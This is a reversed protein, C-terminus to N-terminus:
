LAGLLEFAPLATVLKNTELSVTVVRKVLDVIYRPDDSWENPDNTIGSDKDTTIAYREMVCEIASKGNVVYNYADLPVGTLRVHPNFIIQSKDEVKKEKPFKMGVENVRYLDKPKKPAGEAIQEKLPYPKCTEYGLHIEALARGTKSYGWFDKLLPIRPLMKKLDNQYKARYIPSHLLGYVYYFIDEKAIKADAYKTKFETLAFDTIADRRIYGHDDPKQGGFMNETKQDELKEYYYLPFCQGTDLLHLNPVLDTALVSFGKRDVVGITCFVVNKHDPTPFLKPVQYVM